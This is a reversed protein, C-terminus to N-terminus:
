LAQINEHVSKIILSFIRSMNTWNAFDCSFLAFIFQLFNFQFILIFYFNYTVAQQSGYKETSNVAKELLHSSEETALLANNHKLNTESSTSSM